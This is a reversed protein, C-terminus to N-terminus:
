KDSNQPRGICKQDHDCADAMKKVLQECLAAQLHGITTDKGPYLELVSDSTDPIEHGSGTGMPGSFLIRKTIHQGGTECNLILTHRQSSMPPTTGVNSVIGVEVSLNQFDYKVRNTDLNMDLTLGNYMKPKIIMVLEASAPTMTIALTIGLLTNNM